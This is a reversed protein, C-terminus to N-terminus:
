GIPLDDTEDSNDQDGAGDTTEVSASGLAALDTALDDLSLDDDDAADIVTQDRLALWRDFISSDLNNEDAVHKLANISYVFCGKREAMSYIRDAYSKSEMARRFEKKSLKLAGFARVKEGVLDRVAKWYDEFAILLTSASTQARSVFDNLTKPFAELVDPSTPTADKPRLPQFATSLLSNEITQALWDRGEKTSEIYARTPLPHVLICQPVMPEGKVEARKRPLSVAVQMGDVYIAPDFVSNGEEDQELGIGIFPYDGFDSMTTAMDVLYKLAEEHTAFIMKNAMDKAVTKPTENNTAM